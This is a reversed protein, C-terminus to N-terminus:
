VVTYREVEVHVVENRHQCRLHESIRNDIPIVRSKHHPTQKDGILSLRYAIASACQLPM